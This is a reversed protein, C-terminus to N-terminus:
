KQPLDPPTQSIVPLRLELGKLTGLSHAATEREWISAGFDLLELLRETVIRKVEKLREPFEDVRIEVLGAESLTRWVQESERDGRSM